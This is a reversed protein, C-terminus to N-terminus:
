SRLPIYIIWLSSEFLPTGSICFFRTFTPWIMIQGMQSQLWNECLLWSNNSVSKKKGSPILPVTLVPKLLQSYNMSTSCSFFHWCCFFLTPLISKLLPRSHLMVNSKRLSSKLMQFRHHSFLCLTVQLILDNLSYDKRSGFRVRQSQLSQLIQSRSKKKEGTPEKEHLLTKTWLNRIWLAEVFLLSPLNNKETQIFHRLCHKKDQKFSRHVNFLQCEIGYGQIWGM